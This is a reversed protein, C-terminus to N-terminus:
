GIARRMDVVETSNTGEIEKLSNEFKELEKEEPWGFTVILAKLGFAVPQVEFMPKKIGEREMKEIVRIKIKELDTEPSVPMIKIKVAVTAM